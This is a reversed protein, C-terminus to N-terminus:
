LSRVSAAYDLRQPRAPLPPPVRRLSGRLILRAVSSLNQFRVGIAPGRDTPRRGRIIRAVSAEGDFWLGFPTAEFSVLLSEGVRVDEGTDITVRMGEPSVDVTRTGLLLFDRERVVQCRMETAHRLTKRDNRRSLVLSSM